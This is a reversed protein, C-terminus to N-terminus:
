HSEFSVLEHKRKEDLFLTGPCYYLFIIDTYSVEDM